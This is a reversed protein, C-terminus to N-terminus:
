YIIFIKKTIYHWVRIVHVHFKMLQRLEVDIIDFWIKESSYYTM